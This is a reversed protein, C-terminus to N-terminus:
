KCQNQSLLNHYLSDKQRDFEMDVLYGLVTKISKLSVMGQSEGTIHPM